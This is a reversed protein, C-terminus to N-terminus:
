ARWRFVLPRGELIAVAEEYAAKLEVFQKLNGGRDPHHQFAVERWRARLQEATCPYPAGLVRFPEPVQPTHRAYQAYQAELARSRRLCEELLEDITRKPAPPPNPPQRRSRPKRVKEVPPAPPSPTPAPAAKRVRPKPQRKPPMYARSAELPETNMSPPPSAGGFYCYDVLTSAWPEVDFDPDARRKM